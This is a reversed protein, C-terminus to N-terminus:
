SWLPQGCAGMALQQAAKIDALAATEFDKPSFESKDGVCSGQWVVCESEEELLEKLTPTYVLSLRIERLGSCIRRINAIVDAEDSITAPGGVEDEYTGYADGMVRVGLKRLLPIHKLLQLLDTLRLCLCSCDLVMLNPTEALLRDLADKCASSSQGKSRGLGNLFYLEKLNSLPKTVRALEAIYTIDLESSVWDDSLSLVQLQEALKSTVFGVGVDPTVTLKTVKPFLEQVVDPRTTIWEQPPDLGSPERVLIELETIDPHQKFFPHYTTEIQNIDEILLRLHRLKQLPNKLDRLVETMKADLALTVLDPSREIMNILEKPVPRNDWSMGPWGLNLCTMNEFVFIQKDEKAIMPMHWDESRRGLTLMTLKPCKTQFVKLLMPVDNLNLYDPCDLHQLRKLKPVVEQFERMVSAPPQEDFDLTLSRLCVSICLRNNHVPSEAELRETLRELESSDTIKIAQYLCPFSLRRWLHSVRSTQALEPTSLYGLVERVIEPLLYKDPPFSKM